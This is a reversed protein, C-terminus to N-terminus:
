GVVISVQPGTRSHLFGFARKGPQIDDNDAGATARYSLENFFRIQEHTWCSGSSLAASRLIACPRVFPATETKEAAATLLESWVQKPKGALSIAVSILVL